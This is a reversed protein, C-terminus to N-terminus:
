HTSSAEPAESLGDQDVLNNGSPALLLFVIVILMILLVGPEEPVFEVERGGFQFTRKM